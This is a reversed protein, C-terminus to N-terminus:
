PLVRDLLQEAQMEHRFQLVRLAEAASRLRCSSPARSLSSRSRLTAASPTDPSPRPLSVVLHKAPFGGRALFRSLPRPLAPAPGGCLGPVCAPVGLTARRGGAPGLPRVCSGNAARLVTRHCRVPHRHPSPGRRTDALQAVTRAAVLRALRSAVEQDGHRAVRVVSGDFSRDCHFSSSRLAGRPRIM